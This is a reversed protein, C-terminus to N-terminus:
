SERFARDFYDTLPKVIYALPTREETRIFAEVPMGPVLAREGLMERGSESLVIEVRFYSQGSQEDTFADASVLAVQGSIDPTNRMNFAPFVLRAAQGVFVQDIDNPDVRASIVLPRDQPVLHLAPEAARLVARPTTVQLGYVVGSVPARIDLRELRERLARRREALELERVGIERLETQADERRQTELTLIELEIETIRGEAQARESLLSGRTGALRARERELALVRSAQALGRDLLSQQGELEREILSTQTELADLQAVIGEIQSRIQARRRELQEIQQTRSDVRAEFLRRQGEMLAAVTPTEAAAAILEPPFTVQDDGDREATLRGRRALVEYFQSEVITLESRLLTGDLRILTEGAEVAQGEEVRIDDVVGGDPHQVVQRNQEVEVEGPAIVAGSLEATVSWTGFGGVLLVLAAFGLVVPTRATWRREDARDAAATADTSERSM